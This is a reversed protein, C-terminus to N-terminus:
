GTGEANAAACHGFWQTDSQGAKARDTDADDSHQLGMRIRNCCPRPTRQNDARHARSVTMTLASDIDRWVEISVEFITDMELQALPLTRVVPDGDEEVFNM